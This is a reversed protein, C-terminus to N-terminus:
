LLKMFLTMKTSSVHVVHLIDFFYRSYYIWSLEEIVKANVIELELPDEYSDSQILETEIRNEFKKRVAHSNTLFIWIIIKWWFCAIGFPSCCDVISKFWGCLQQPSFCELRGEIVDYESFLPMQARPFLDFYKNPKPFKKCSKPLNTKFKSIKKNRQKRKEYPYQM